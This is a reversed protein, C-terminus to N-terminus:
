PSVPESTPNLDCSIGDSGVECQYFGAETGLSFAARDNVGFGLVYNGNEETRLLVRILNRVMLVPFRFRETTRNEEEVILDLDLLLSDEPDSIYGPFNGRVLAPGLTCDNRFEGFMDGDLVVTAAVADKASFSPSEVYLEGHQFDLDPELVNPGLCSIRVYATTGEADGSTANDSYEVGGNSEEVSRILPEAQRYVASGIEMVRDITEHDDLLREVQAATQSPDADILRGSPATMEDVIEAYPVAPWSNVAVEPECSLMLLGFLAGGIKFINRLSDKM